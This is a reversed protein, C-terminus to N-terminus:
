ENDTDEPNENIDHTLIREFKEHLLEKGDYSGDVIYTVNKLQETITIDPIWFSSLNSVVLREEEDFHTYHSEHHPSPANAEDPNKFYYEVAEDAIKISEDYDNKKM